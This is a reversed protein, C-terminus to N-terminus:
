YSTSGELLLYKFIGFYVLSVLVLYRIFTKTSCLLAFLYKRISCM